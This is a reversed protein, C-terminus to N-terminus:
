YNCEVGNQLPRQHLVVEEPKIHQVAHRPKVAGVGPMPVEGLAEWRDDTRMQGEEQM